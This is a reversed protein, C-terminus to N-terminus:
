RPLPIPKPSQKAGQPPGFTAPATAPADKRCGAAGAALALGLLLLRFPRDM